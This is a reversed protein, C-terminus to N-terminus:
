KRLEGHAYDRAANLQDNFADIDPILRKARVVMEHPDLGLSNAMAVAMAFLADLQIGPPVFQLADLIAFAAHRLQDTAKYAFAIADRITHIPSRWAPHDPRRM